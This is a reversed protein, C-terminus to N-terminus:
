NQNRPRWKHPDRHQRLHRVSNKQGQNQDEDKEQHIPAIQHAVLYVTAGEVPDRPDGGDRHDYQGEDENVGADHM